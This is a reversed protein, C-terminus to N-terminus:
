CKGEMNQSQKMTYLSNKITQSIKVYQSFVTTLLSFLVLYQLALM